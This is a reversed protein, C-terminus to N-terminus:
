ASVETARPADMSGTTLWREVIKQTCNNGCAPKYSSGEVGAVGALPVITLSMLMQPAFTHSLYIAWWHNFEEEKIRNCVFCRTM